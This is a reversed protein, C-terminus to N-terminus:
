EDGEKNEPQWITYAEQARGHFLCASQGTNLMFFNARERLFRIIHQLCSKWQEAPMDEM